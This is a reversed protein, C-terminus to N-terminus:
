LMMVIYHAHAHIVWIAKMFHRTKYGQTRTVNTSYKQIHLLCQMKWLHGCNAQIQLNHSHSNIPWHTAKNKHLHKRFIEEPKETQQHQMLHREIKWIHFGLWSFQSIIKLTESLNVSSQLAPIPPTLLDPKTWTSREQNCLSTEMWALKYQRPECCHTFGGLPHWASIWYCLVCIRVYVM